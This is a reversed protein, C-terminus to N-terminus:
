WDGKGFLYPCDGHLNLLSLKLGRSPIKQKAVIEAIEVVSPQRARTSNTETGTLPNEAKSCKAVGVRGGSGYAAVVGGTETGTLPNEAKSRM